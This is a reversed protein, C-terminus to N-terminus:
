VIDSLKGTFILREPDNIRSFLIKLHGWGINVNKLNDERQHLDTGKDLCVQIEKMCPYNVALKISVPRSTKSFIKKGIYVYTIINEWNYGWRVGLIIIKILKL